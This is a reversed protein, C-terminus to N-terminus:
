FKKLESFQFNAGFISLNQFKEDIQYEARSAIKGIRISAKQYLDIKMFKDIISIQRNEFNNNKLFKQIRAFKFTLM